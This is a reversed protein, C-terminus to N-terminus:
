TRDSKTTSSFGTAEDVELILMEVAKDTDIQIGKNLLWEEYVDRARLHCIKGTIKVTEKFNNIQIVKKM